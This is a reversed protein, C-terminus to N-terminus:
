KRQYKNVISHYYIHGVQDYGDEEGIIVKRHAIGKLKKELDTMFAAYRTDYANNLAAIDRTLHEKVISSYYDAV